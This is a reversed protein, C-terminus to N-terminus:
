CYLISTLMYKQWWPRFARVYFYPHGYQWYKTISTVIPFNIYWSVICGKTCGVPSNILLTGNVQNLKTFTKLRDRMIYSIFHGNLFITGM